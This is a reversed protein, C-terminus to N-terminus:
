AGGRSAGPLGYSMLDVSLAGPIHNAAYVPAPSADLILVDASKLNRELWQADVLNGSRAPKAVLLCAALAFLFRPRAIIPM